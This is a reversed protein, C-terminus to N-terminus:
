SLTGNASCNLSISVPVYTGNKSLTANLYATSGSSWTSQGGYTWGDTGAGSGNTATVYSTSGDYYFSAQLTASGIYTGSYYYDKTASGAKSSRASTEDWQITTVVKIDNDLYEVYTTPGNGQAMASLPIVLALMLTLAFSLIKKM